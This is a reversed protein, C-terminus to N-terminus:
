CTGNIAAALGIFSRPEVPRSWLERGDVTVLTIVARGELLLYAGEATDGSTFLISGRPALLPNGVAILKEAAVDGISM